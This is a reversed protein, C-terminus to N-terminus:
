ATKGSAQVAMKVTQLACYTEIDMNTTSKDMIEGMVNFSSEVLPGHFCSLAAQVPANYATSTFYFAVGSANTTSDLSQQWPRSLMTM